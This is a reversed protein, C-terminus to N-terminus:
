NACFYLSGQEVMSVSIRSGHELLWLWGEPPLFVGNFFLTELLTQGQGNKSKMDAGHQILEKIIQFKKNGPIKKTAIWHLPRTSAFFDSTQITAKTDAGQNILIQVIELHSDAFEQWDCSEHNVLFTALAASRGVGNTPKDGAQVLVECMAPNVCAQNITTPYCVLQRLLPSNIGVEIWDGSRIKYEVYRHLGLSVAFEKWTRAQRQSSDIRRLYDEPWDGGSGLSLKRNINDMTEPMPREMTKEALPSHFVVETIVRNRYWHMPIKTLAAEPFSLWEECARLIFAHGTDPLRGMSQWESTKASQLFANQPSLLFEKVTRHMFQVTWKGMVNPAGSANFQRQQERILSEESLFEAADANSLPNFYRDSVELLGGSCSQVQHVLGQLNQLFQILRDLRQDLNQSEEDHQTDTFLILGLQALTLPREARLVSELMVYSDRRYKPDVKDIIRHFFSNLDDPLDTLRKEADEISYGDTLVQDLDRVVLRVWLFVGQAREAINLAFKRISHSRVNPDYDRALRANDNLHHRAYAVVDDYSWDQTKFGPCQDFLDTLQNLPRSAVSIIIRPLDPSSPDSAFQHLFQGMQKHDGEHEDLADIIFFANFNVDKQNRCRMLADQLQQVTWTDFPNIVISDQVGGLSMYVPRSVSDSIEGSPPEAVFSRRVDASLQKSVFSDTFMKMETERALTQLNDPIAVPILERKQSLLQHLMSHLIGQWTKQALTGRDTFFSGVVIWDRPGQRQNLIARTEPNHYIYKAITSKGSGPKGQIWFIGAGEFLWRRLGPGPHNFLWRLTKHHAPTIEHKRIEMEPLYLTMLCGFEQRLLLLMGTDGRLDRVNRDNVDFGSRSAIKMAILGINAYASGRHPTGMFIIAFTSQQIDQFEKDTPPSSNGSLHHLLDNGHELVTNQNASGKFFNSARSDYGYTLVRLEPFDRTIFDGPWYATLNESVEIQEHRSNILSSLSVSAKAKNNKGRPCAWTRYPHGQLGHVFVLDAMPSSDGTSLETLGGDTTM